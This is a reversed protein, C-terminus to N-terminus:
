GFGRRTATRKFSEAACRSNCWEGETFDTLMWMINCAVAPSMLKSPATDGHSLRRGRFRAGTMSGPKVTEQHAQVPKPMWWQDTHFGMVGGPKAINATFSSLLFEDGLVHRM